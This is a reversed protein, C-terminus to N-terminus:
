CDPRLRAGIESAAALVLSVAHPRGDEMEFQPTLTTISVSAVVTGKQDFVPAGLGAMGLIYDDVAFEWGRKRIEVAATELAAKDTVTFETHHELPGLLAQTRQEPSLYALLVRPGGSRNLSVQSGIASWRTDIHLNPGKVRDLCLAKGNFFIWIFSTAGTQEALRGLVPAAVDRLDRGFQVGPFLLLVGPGLSYTKTGEDFEVFDDAALTQLLRRTTGKDLDTLRALDTLSLSPTAPGFARLLAMAREVARVKPLSKNGNTM